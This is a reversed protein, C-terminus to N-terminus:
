APRVALSPRRRRTVAGMLLGVAGGVLGVGSPEPVVAVIQARYYSLDAIFTDNGFVATFVPDPQGSFGGVSFIVGALLWQGGVKTFVAGGSDKLVAQAETSGPLIAFDTAFSKVDHYDTPGVGYVSREWFDNSAVENTGWRIAQTALTGYGAADGGSTTGTWTWPTTQDDVTWEQFAGRDRGGGIMTVAETLAPMSPAIALTPLGVPETALKFMYLDTYTTKGPANNVLTFSTNSGTAQLYTGSALVIGTGGVHGATLVWGGGIYIATGNPNNAYGVNAFGPDDAPASTNDTGSVTQILVARAPGASSVVGAVVGAALVRCVRHISSTRQM